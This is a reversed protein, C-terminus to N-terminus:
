VLLPNCIRQSLSSSGWGSKNTARTAADYWGLSYDTSLTADTTGGSKKVANVSYPFSMFHWKSTQDFTIKTRVGGNITLSCGNKYFEAAATSTKGFIMRNLELAATSNTSSLFCVAGAKLQIDASSKLKRQEIKLSDAVIFNNAVDVEAQANSRNLRLVGIVNTTGQTTQDFRITGM